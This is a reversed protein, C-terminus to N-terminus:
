APPASVAECWPPRMGPLVTQPYGAPREIPMGTDLLRQMFQVAMGPGDTGALVAAAREAAERYRPEGLLMRLAAAVAAPEVRGGNGRLGAGLWVVRAANAGQEGGQPLVLMPKGAALTENVTNNGGHCIVADMLPLLERQPVHRCLLVAAEEGAREADTHEQDACISENHASWLCVNGVAESAATKDGYVERLREFSAGAAVVAQFGAARVGAIVRRFWEPRRDFVTGMSVLVRPRRQSLLEHAFPAGLGSYFAPGVYFTRPPLPDRPAEVSAATLVLNAWHSSWPATRPAEYSLGFSRRVAGIRGHLRRQGQEFFWRMFRARADFPQGIALGSGVPPVLPGPSTLGVHYVSMWPVGCTEAAVGAAPMLFDSVVLRAGLRRFCAALRRARTGLQATFLEVALVSEIFGSFYPLWRFAADCWLPALPELRLGAARVSALSPEHGFGAFACEHGADRWRTAIGLLPHLHGAQAHGVFVVM